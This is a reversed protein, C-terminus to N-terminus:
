NDGVELDWGTLDKRAQKLEARLAEIVERDKAWETEAELRLRREEPTMASLDPMQAESSAITITVLQKDVPISAKAQAQRLM